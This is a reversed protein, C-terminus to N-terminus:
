SSAPGARTAIWAARLGVEVFGWRQYLRRAPANREDVALALESAGETQCATLAWSIIADGVGHGRATSAVGMYVVELTRHGDIRSLLLVGIPEGDRRATWWLAPDFVGVARHGALVDEIRRLGTLEPCDLSQIYSRGIAERFLDDQAPGYAVWELGDSAQAPSAHGAVSRRLYRLTTLRRFGSQSLIDGSAPTEREVLTQLLAVARRDTELRLARLAAVTAIRRREGLVVAPVLVLAASGPSEIALAASILHGRVYAGYLLDISVAGNRASVILQTVAPHAACGPHPEPLDMTLHLARIRDPSDADILRVPICDHDDSM